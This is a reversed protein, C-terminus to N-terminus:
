ARTIWSRPKSPPGDERVAIQKSAFLREMALEFDRQRYGQRDPRKAFARPAFNTAMKSHTVRRHEANTADLLSLFVEDAPPKWTTSEPSNLAFAGKNWIIPIQDNRNAYNAKKRFLIREDAPPPAGNESEPVTLFLRSRLSNSWGTSGGDGQGSSLGSRSPHACLMVAGDIAEAISGLARAIFQRVQGRDNENGGFTDAATDVVVLRAGFDQAHELLQKHVPTLEGRGSRGFTMLLNDESVRSILHMNQLDACDCRLADNLAAQRRLLEDEDDECYLGISKVPEAMQGIWDGGIACSTQLHQSLLSKGLGGDGYLGTVARRPIWNNVIWRRPRIERGFFDGPQIIKLPPPPVPPPEYDLSPRGDARVAPKM